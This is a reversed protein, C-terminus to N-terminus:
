FIRDVDDLLLMQELLGESKVNNEDVRRNLFNSFARQWVKM